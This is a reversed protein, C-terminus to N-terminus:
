PLWACASAPPPPTRTTCPPVSSVDPPVMEPLVASKWPPPRYTSSPVVTVNLMPSIVPFEAAPLPPPTKMLGLPEKVKFSERYWRLYADLMGMFEEITVGAWDCGYFFEIKLRGFYGALSVAVLSAQCSPTRRPSRPTKCPLGPARNGRAIPCLRAPPSAKGVPPGDQTRPHAGMRTSFRRM